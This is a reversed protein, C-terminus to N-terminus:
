GSSVLRAGPVELDCLLRYVHAGYGQVLSERQEATLSRFHDMVSTPDSARMITHTLFLSWLLCHGDRNWGTVESPVTWQALPLYRFGCDLYNEVYHALMQEVRSATIGLHTAFFRADGNPDVLFCVRARRDFLLVCAHGPKGHVSLQLPLAHWRLSLNQEFWRQLTSASWACVTYLHDHDGGERQWVTELAGDRAKCELEFQYQWHTDTDTHTFIAYRSADTVIPPVQTFLVYYLLATHPLALELWHERPIPHVYSDSLFDRMLDTLYKWSTM